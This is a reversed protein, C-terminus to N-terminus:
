YIAQLDAFVPKIVAANLLANTLLAIADKREQATSTGDFSMEVNAFATRVVVPTSVGNITQTQVIPLQLKLVPKWRGAATKTLSTTLVNNGVPVGNSEVLRAVNGVIDMPTYTHAVPTSAGDNIVVNALQPM